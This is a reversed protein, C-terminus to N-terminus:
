LNSINIRNINYILFIYEPVYFIDMILYFIWPYFFFCTMISHSLTLVNVINVFCHCNHHLTMIMSICAGFSMSYPFRVMILIYLILLIYLINKSFVESWSCDANKSFPSMKEYAVTFRHISVTYIHIYLVEVKSRGICYLFSLFKTFSSMMLYSFYIFYRFWVWCKGEIILMSLKKLTEIRSSHSNCINIYIYYKM